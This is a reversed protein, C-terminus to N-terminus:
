RRRRDKDKVKLREGSWFSFPIVRVFRSAESKVQIGEVKEGGRGIRVHNLRHLMQAPRARASGTIRIMGQYRGAFPPEYYARYSGSGTDHPDDDNLVLTTQSGDPAVVRASVRLGSLRDGWLAAATIAVPAGSPNDASAGGRAVLRRHEVGAFAHFDFAPGPQPRVAVMRWLGPKPKGVVAFEYSERSVQRSNPDDLPHPEGDPALLYLWLPQKPPFRLTFSARDAGEEVYASIVRFRALAAPRGGKVSKWHRDPALLDGLCLKFADLLKELPPRKNPPQAPRQDAPHPPAAAMGADESAVLGGLLLDYILQTLTAAGVADSAQFPYNGCTAAGLARLTPMDIADDGEGFGISFVRVGAEQLAVVDSDAGIDDPNFETGDPYNHVGDTLLLVAQTAARDNPSPALLGRATALAARINTWGSPQLGAITDDIDDPLSTGDTLPLHTQASQNYSILALRADLGGLSADIRLRDVWYQAAAKANTMKDSEGMSGSRDIVLALRREEVLYTLKPALDQSWGVEPALDPPDPLDLPYAFRDAMTDAITEWCSKGLAAHQATDGDPDHNGASCFDTSPASGTYPQWIGSDNFSGANDDEQMLCLYGDPNAGPGEHCTENPDQYFVKAPSAQSPLFSFPPDDVVVQTATSSIVLRRQLLTGQQMAAYVGQLANNARAPNDIPIVTTSEAPSAVIDDEEVEGTYEDRVGFIQHALEHVVTMPNFKVQPMLHVQQLTPAANGFGGFSAYSGEGADHLVVEAADLGYSNNAILWRSIRLQGDTAHYFLEAAKQLSRPWETFLENNSANYDVTVPIEFAGDVFRGCPM